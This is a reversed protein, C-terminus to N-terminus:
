EVIVKITKRNLGSDTYTIFYTGPELSINLNVEKFGNFDDFSLKDVIRGTADYIDLRVATQGTNTNIFFSKGNFPNPYIIIDADNDGACKCYIAKTDSKIGDFDVETLQYYANPANTNEDTFEYNKNQQSIGAAKIKGITSYNIGDESKNVLFYDSNTESSTTWKIVHKGEQCDATFGTIEVPLVEDKVGITWKSFGNALANIVRPNGTVSVPSSVQVWPDPADQKFVSMANTALGNDFIDLWKFTMDIDASPQNEVLIDWYCEISSVDTITSIGNIGTVRTVTVNGLDDSVNNMIAWVNGFGPSLSISQTGSISINDFWISYENSNNYGCSPEMYYLINSKDTIGSIDFVVKASACNRLESFKFGKGNAGSDYTVDVGDIIVSTVNHRYGGDAWMYFRCWDNANAAFYSNSVDFSLTVEDYGTNNVEPLRVFNGWYNNWSGSYGIRGDSCGGTASHAVPTNSDPAFWVNTPATSGHTLIDSNFQEPGTVVTQSTINNTISVTGYIHSNNNEGILEADPALFITASENNPDGDEYTKLVGTVFEINDSINLDNALFVTGSAARNLYIAQLTNQTPDFFLNGAAGSGLVVLYSSTTGGLYGNTRSVNGYLDLICNGLNFTGNIKNLNKIVATRFGTLNVGASNNIELLSIGAIGGLLSSYSGTTNFTQANTGNFVIKSNEQEAYLVGEHILDGTLSLTYPIDGNDQNYVSFACDEHITVSGYCFVNDWMIANSFINTSNTYLEVSPAHGAISFTNTGAPSSSSGIMLKGGTININSATVNYMPYVLSTSYSPNILHIEGGSINISANNRFDFWGTQDSLSNGFYGTRIRGASMTLNFDGNGQFTVPGSCTLDGGSITLSSGNIFELYDSWDNGVNVTGQRIELNGYCVVPDYGSIGFNPNDIILTFNSGSNLSSIQPLKRVDDPSTNTSQIGFRTTMTYTGGIKLTGTHDIVDYMFFGNGDLNNSGWGLLQVPKIEVVDSNNDKLISLGGLDNEGTGSWESNGSGRFRVQVYSWYGTEPRDNFLVGHGANANNYLSGKLILLHVYNRSADYAANTQFDSDGVMLINGNVTLTKATDSGDIGWFFQLLGEIRLNNIEYNGNIIMKSNARITVNTTSSNPPTTATVWASGNYVQWNSAVSWMYNVGDTYRTRYDGSAPGTGSTFYWVSCGTATGSANRPVIKWYYTTNDAITATYSTTTVNTVYPPNSGTGFYVDYSTAGSAASWTLPDAPSHGISADAPMLPSTCTPPTSPETYTVSLYPRNANSYGAIQFYQGNTWTGMPFVGMSVSNSNIANQIYLKGATTFTSSRWGLSQVAVSASYATTMTNHLNAPYTLPDASNVMAWTKTAVGTGWGGLINIYSTAATVTSNDMISSLDYRVSGAIWYYSYYGSYMTEDDYSGDDWATGTWGAYNNPYVSVTPDIILPFIRQNDKIWSAKVITRIRLIQGNQEIEYIGTENDLGKDNNKEFYVPTSYRLIENGNNDFVSIHQRPEKQVKNGPENYLLAKFGDPLYVEETFSIFYANAPIQNLFGSGTIEYNIKRGEYLQTIEANTYPYINNYTIKSNNLNMKCNGAIIVDLTNYNEDLFEIKKNKWESIEDSGVVTKIGKEQNLSIFTLFSNKTNSYEFDPYIGSDNKLYNREITRWQRDYFYNLSGTSIIAETSGDSNKFHKSTRNRLSIIEDDPNRHSYVADTEYTEDKAQKSNCYFHGSNQIESNIKHSYTEIQKKHNEIQSIDRDYASQSFSFSYSCGFVLIFISIYFQKKMTM